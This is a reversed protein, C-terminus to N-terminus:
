LNNKLAREFAKEHGEDNGIIQGIEKAVDRFVSIPYDNTFAIHNHVIFGMKSLEDFIELNFVGLVPEDNDIYLGFAQDPDNGNLESIIWKKIQPTNDPLNNDQSAMIYAVAVNHESFAAAKWNEKLQTIQYETLLQMAVGTGTISSTM